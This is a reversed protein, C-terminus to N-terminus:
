ANIHQVNFLISKVCKKHIHPSANDCGLLIGIQPFINSYNMNGNRHSIHSFFSIKGARLSVDNQKLKSMRSFTVAASSLINSDRGQETEASLCPWDMLPSIEELWNVWLFLGILSSIGKWVSAKKCWLLTLQNWWPASPPSM